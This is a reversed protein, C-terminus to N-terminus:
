NETHENDDGPIPLPESAPYEAEAEQANWLEAIARMTDQSMEDVIAEHGHYGMTKPYEQNINHLITGLAEDKNKVLAVAGFSIFEIGRRMMISAIFVKM